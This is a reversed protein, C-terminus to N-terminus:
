KALEVTTLDQFWSQASVFGKVKKTMARGNLDHVIFAWPADDVVLEHAAKISEDITKADTATEIKAVLADFADNKWHGWNSGAPAANSALMYRALQSIDSTPSSINLGDTAKAEPATPPPRPAVVL